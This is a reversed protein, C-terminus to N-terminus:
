LNKAYLINLSRMILLDERDKQELASTAQCIEM